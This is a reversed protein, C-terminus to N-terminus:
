FVQNKCWETNMCQRFLNVKVRGPIQSIIKRKLKPDENEYAKILRNMENCNIKISFDEEASEAQKVENNEYVFYYEKKDIVVRVSDYKSNEIFELYQPNSNVENLVEAIGSEISGLECKEKTKKSEVIGVLAFALIFCLMLAVTKKSM